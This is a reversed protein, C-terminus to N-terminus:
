PAVWIPKELSIVVLHKAGHAFTKRELKLVVDVAPMGWSAFQEIKQALASDKPVFVFTEYDPYPPEVKYCLYDDIDKFEKRDDGWYSYRQMVLRFNAPGTESSTRFKGFLRDKCDVFLEWDVKYAGDATKRLVAPFESGIGEVSLYFAVFPDSGDVPKEDM